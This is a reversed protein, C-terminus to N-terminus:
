HRTWGSPGQDKPQDQTIDEYEVDIPDTPRTPGARNVQMQILRSALTRLLPRRVAPILIGFGIADTFFGPTLLLAGSFLIALGEGLVETPDEHNALRQQLNAMASLGQQRVLLTGIAATLIVTALTGWLGILGGVQVFLAIEILPVIVFLAFLVM